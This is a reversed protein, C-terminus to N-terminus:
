RSDRAAKRRAARNIPIPPPLGAVPSRRKAMHDAEVGEDGVVARRAKYRNFDDVDIIHKKVHGVEVGTHVYVKHGLLHVRICFGFDEGYETVGHVSTFFWPSVGPWGAAMQELISRHMLLCAAGTADVPVVANQPWEEFTAIQGPTTADGKSVIRYMTPSVRGGRGSFCLGGVVKADKEEAAEILRDLTDGQFVMDADLMLLWESDTNELFHAVMQNRASAILPGSEMNVVSQIRGNRQRDTLLARTLSAAFDGSVTGPHCYALTASGEILATERPRANLMAALLICSAHVVFPPAGTM